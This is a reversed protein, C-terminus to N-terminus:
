FAIETVRTFFSAGCFQLLQVSFDFTILPMFKGFLFIVVKGLVIMEVNLISKQLGGLFQEVFCSFRKRNSGWISSLKLKKKFFLNWKLTNRQVCLIWNKCCKKFVKWCFTPNKYSMTRTYVFEIGIHKKFNKKRQIRLIRNQCALWFFYSSSIM